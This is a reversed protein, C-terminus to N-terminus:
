GRDIVAQVQEPELADPADRYRLRRAVLVVAVGSAAGLAAALLAWPWRRVAVPPGVREGRLADWAATGRVAAEALAERVTEEVEPLVNETLNTATGAVSETLATTRM